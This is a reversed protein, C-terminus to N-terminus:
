ISGFPVFGGLDWGAPGLRVAEHAYARITAWANAGDGTYRAIDYAGCWTHGYPGYTRTHLRRMRPPKILKHKSASNISAEHQIQAQQPNVKLESHESAPERSTYAWKAVKIEALNGLGCAVVTRM